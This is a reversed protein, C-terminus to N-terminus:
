SAPFRLLPVWVTEHVRPAVLQHQPEPLEHAEALHDLLEDGTMPGLHPCLLCRGNTTSM